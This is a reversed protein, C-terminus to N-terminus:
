AGQIEFDPIPILTFGLEFGKNIQSAANSTAAVLVSGGTSSTSLFQITKQENDWWINYAALNTRARMGGIEWDSKVGVEIDTVFEPGYFTNASFTGSNFGGSSYARRSTAYVMTEPRVKYDVSVTWGPATWKGSRELLCNADSGAQTCVGAD